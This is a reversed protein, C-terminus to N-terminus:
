FVPIVSTSTKGKRWLQPLKYGWGNRILDVVTQNNRISRYQLGQKFLDTVYDFTEQSYFLNTGRGSVLWGM